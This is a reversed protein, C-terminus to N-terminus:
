KKNSHIGVNIFSNGYKKKYENVIKQINSERDIFQEFTFLNYSVSIEQASKLNNLSVGLLRLDDGGYNESFLDSVVSYILYFDNTYDDLSQSRVITKFATNRLTIGINKTLYKESTMRKHIVETLKRLEILIDEEYNLISDYTQSTSISESKARFLSEVNDGSLGHIKNLNEKYTRESMVSLIKPSNNTQVFDGITNIGLNHLKPYTSKGIGFVEKVDLPYLLKSVERKRVITIGLPKKMDSGMKALFLTPAIGISSPLHLEQLLRQQIEKAILIPHRTKSLETLDLYAEDISAISIKNTYQKLVNVFLNHYKRYENFNHDVIILSPLKRLAEIQPMGSGIGYKRAEYSATSLVGKYSGKKGVGFAKGKLYPYEIEAVSCFFANLDIHFIIKVLFFM